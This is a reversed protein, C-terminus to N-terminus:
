ERFDFIGSDAAPVSQREAERLLSRLTECTKQFLTGEGKAEVLVDVIVALGYGKPGGVSQLVAQSGHLCSRFALGRGM